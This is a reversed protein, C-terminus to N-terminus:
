NGACKAAETITQSTPSAGTESKAPKLAVALVVAPRFQPPRANIQGTPLQQDKPEIQENQTAPVPAPEAPAAPAATAVPRGAQIERLTKHLRLFQRSLRLSHRQFNGLARGKEELHEMALAIRTAHPCNNFQKEVDAAMRDMTLQVLTAEMAEGRQRRWQITVMEEVIDTEVLGEPKLWNIYGALHNQFAAQQEVNLLLPHRSTLGHTTANQSSVAKGDPTTPGLSKAGNVRSAEIQKETRM